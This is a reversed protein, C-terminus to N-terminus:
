VGRLGQRLPPSAGQGSRFPAQCRCPRKRCLAAVARCQLGGWGMHEYTLREGRDVVLRGSFWEAPVPFKQGDFIPSPDIPQMQADLLGVLYLDGAFVEWLGQYGRYLATSSVNSIACMDIGRPELYPELPLVHLDEFRDDLILIESAQRTM